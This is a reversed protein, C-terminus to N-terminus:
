TPNTSKLKINEVNNKIDITDVKTVTNIVNNILFSGVNDEITVINEVAIPKKVPAYMGIDINGFNTCYVHANKGVVYEHLKILNANKFVGKDLKSRYKFTLGDIKGGFEDAISTTLIILFEYPYLTSKKPILISGVIEATIVVANTITNEIKFKSNADLIVLISPGIFIPAILYLNM